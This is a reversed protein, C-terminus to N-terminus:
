TKGLGGETYMHLTSIHIHTCLHSHAQPPWFDINPTKRLQEWRIIIIKQGTSEQQVQLKCLLSSLSALLGSSGQLIKRVLAPLCHGQIALEKGGSDHGWNRRLAEKPARINPIQPQTKTHQGFLAQAQTWILGWGRSYNPRHACQM